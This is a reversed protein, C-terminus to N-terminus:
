GGVGSRGEALVCRFSAADTPPTTKVLRLYLIYTSKVRPDCVIRGLVMRKGGDWLELCLTCGRHLRTLSQNFCLYVCIYISVSLDRKCM